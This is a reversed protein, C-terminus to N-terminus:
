RKISPSACQHKGAGRGCTPCLPIDPNIYLSFAPPITVAQNSPLELDTLLQQFHTEIAKWRVDAPAEPAMPRSMRWPTFRRISIIAALVLIFALLLIGGILKFWEFSISNFIEQLLNGFIILGLGLGSVIGLLLMIYVPVRDEFATRNQEDFLKRWAILQAKIKAQELRIYKETKQTQYWERVDIFNYEIFLTEFLGAPEDKGLVQYVLNWAGSHSMELKLIRKALVVAARPNPVKQACALQYLQQIEFERGPQDIETM